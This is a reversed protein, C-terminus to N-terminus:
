PVATPPALQYIRYAVEPRLLVRDASATNVDFAMSRSGEEQGTLMNAFDVTTNMAPGIMFGNKAMGTPLLWRTVRRDQSLVRMTVQPRHYFFNRWAGLITDNVELELWLVGKTPLPVTEDFGCRGAQVMRRPSAPISPADRKLLLYGDETLVPRYCRWLEPLVSADELTPYRRDIAQLKFLVFDPARDSRFFEANMAALRSTNVQYGQIMPEVCLNLGNVIAIAQEQGVVAIKARGVAAKIAPLALRQRNIEWAQDWREHTANAHALIAVNGVLQEAARSPMPRWFDEKADDIGHFGLCLALAIFLWHLRRSALPPFFAPTIAVALVGYAIFIQRHFADARTFGQKWALLLAGALLVFRALGMRGERGWVWLLLMQLLGVTGLGLALWLALPSSCFSMSAYGLVIDIATRLYGPLNGLSQGRILWCFGFIASFSGLVGWRVERRGSPRLLGDLVVCGLVFLSFLLYTNKMLSATSLFVLGGWKIAQDLKSDGAVGPACCWHLGVVAITLFYLTEWSTMVYIVTEWDLLANFVVLALFMAREARPLRGAVRMLIIVIFAKSVLQHVFRVWFLEPTYTGTVLFAFPGYTFNIDPGFQWGRLSSETMVSM